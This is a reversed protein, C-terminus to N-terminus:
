ASEARHKLARALRWGAFLAAAGAGCVSIWVLWLARGADAARVPAGAEAQAVVRVQLRVVAAERADMRNDLVVAYEGAEHVAASFGGSDVYNTAALLQHPRGSLWLRVDSRRLLVARVGTAGQELQFTCLVRAGKSALDFEVPRVKAASVRVDEDIVLDSQAGAIAGAALALAAIWNWKM